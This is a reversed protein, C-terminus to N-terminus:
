AGLYARQQNLYAIEARITMGKRDGDIRGKYLGKDRLFSQLAKVSMPGFVDDIRGKYYGLSKLWKQIAVTLSADTYGVRALLLVWAKHSARSHTTSSPLATAPYGSTKELYEWAVWGRKGKWSIQAWSRDRSLVKVRHGEGSMVGIQNKNKGRNSYVPVGPRNTRMISNVSYKTKPKSPKSPKSPKTATSGKYAGAKVFKRFQNMSLRPSSFNPDIKRGRPVAAEKHGVVRDKTVKWGFEKVLESCLKVYSDLQDRSWPEGVGTNEAEIGISRTNTWITKGVRGAHNARGAAVVYITGDRGLGFNCLPGPLGSHGYTVVNLSPMNGRAPGATHHAMVSEPKGMQGYGRTKWGKVEVVPYGTRRAVRALGTLM